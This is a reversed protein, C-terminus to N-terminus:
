KDLERYLWAKAITWGREVTRTSVGLVLATDETSLGSFYRLEVIRSQQEDITQLRDLAEDLALLDSTNNGSVVLM